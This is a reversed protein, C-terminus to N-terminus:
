NLRDLYNPDAKVLILNIFLEADSGPRIYCKVNHVNLSCLVAFLININQLAPDISRILLFIGLLSFEALSFM